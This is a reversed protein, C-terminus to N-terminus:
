FIRLIVLALILFIQQCIVIAVKISGSWYSKRIEAAFSLLIECAAAATLFRSAAIGSRDASVLQFLCFSNCCVVTSRMAKIWWNSHVFHRLVHLACYCLLLLSSFFDGPVRLEVARANRALNWPLAVTACRFRRKGSFVINRAFGSM